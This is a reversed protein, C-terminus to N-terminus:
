SRAELSTGGCVAPSLDASRSSVPLHLRNCLHLAYSSDAVFKAGIVQMWMLATEGVSDVLTIETIDVTLEAPTKRHAILQIAAEAFHSVLTGEILIVTGDRVEVTEARFMAGIEQAPADSAV